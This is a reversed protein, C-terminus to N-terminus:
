KIRKLIYKGQYHDKGIWEGSAILQNAEDVSKTEHYGWLPIKEDKKKSMKEGPTTRLTRRENSTERM